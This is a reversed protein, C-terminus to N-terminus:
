WRLRMPKVQRTRLPLDEMQLGPMELLAEVLTQYRKWPIHGTREWFGWSGEDGGLHKAAAAISWGHFRRTALMRESLTCPEPFPDYDLFRLIAPLHEIQPENKGKEWGLVTSSGVGLLKAAQKQFLGLEMRRKKIHEGLTKPEIPTEKPKLAKLCVPAM